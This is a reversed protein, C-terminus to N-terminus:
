LPSLQLTSCYLKRPPSINPRWLDSSIFGEPPNVRELQSFPHHLDAYVYSTEFIVIGQTDCTMEWQVVVYSAYFSWCAKLRCGCRPPPFSFMHLLDLPFVSKRKLQQHEVICSEKKKLNRMIPSECTTKKLRTQTSFWITLLFRLYIVRHFEKSCSYLTVSSCAHPKICRWLFTFHCTRISLMISEYCWSIIFERKNMAM